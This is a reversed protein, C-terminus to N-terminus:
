VACVVGRSGPRVRGRHLHRGRQGAPRPRYDGRDGSGSSRLRTRRRAGTRLPRRAGGSDSWAAQTGGALMYAAPGAPSQTLRYVVVMVAVTTLWNGYQSLAAATLFRVAPGSLGSRQVGTEINRSQAKQTSTTM